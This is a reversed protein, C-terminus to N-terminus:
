LRHISGAGRLNGNSDLTIFVRICSHLAMGAQLIPARCDRVRHACRYIAVIIFLVSIILIIVVHNFGFKGSCQSLSLLVDPKVIEDVDAVLIVDDPRPFVDADSLREAAAASALQSMLGLRHNGPSFARSLTNRQFNELGWSDLGQPPTPAQCLLFHHKTNTQNTQNSFFVFFHPHDIIFSPIRSCGPGCSSRLRTHLHYTAV